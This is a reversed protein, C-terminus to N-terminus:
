TKCHVAEAHQDKYLFIRYCVENSKLCQFDLLLHKHVGKEIMSFLM